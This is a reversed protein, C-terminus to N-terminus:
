IPKKILDEPHETTAKEIHEVKIEEKISKTEGENKYKKSSLRNLIL